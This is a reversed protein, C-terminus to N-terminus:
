TCYAWHAASLVFESPDVDPNGQKCRQAPVDVKAPDWWTRLANELELTAECTSILYGWRTDCTIDPSFALIREAFWSAPPKAFCQGVIRERNPKQKCFNCFVSFAQHFWDYSELVNTVDRVANHLIHMFGPVLFASSFLLSDDSAIDTGASADSGLDLEMDEDPALAMDEAVAEPPTAEADDLPVDGANDTDDVGSGESGYLEQFGPVFAALDVNSSLTPLGAEVGLDTTFSVATKGFKRVEQWSPLELRLQHLICTAKHLLSGAGVGVGVPPLTHTSLSSIIYDQLQSKESAHFDDSDDAMGYIEGLALLSDLADSLPLLRDGSVETYCTVLWSAGAQTSSDVM